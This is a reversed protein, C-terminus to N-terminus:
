LMKQWSKKDYIAIKFENQSKLESKEEKFTIPQSQLRCFAKLIM